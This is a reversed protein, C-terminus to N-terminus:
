DRLDLVFRWPRETAKSIGIRRSAVVEGGSVVEGLLLPGGRLISLGDLDGTVALAQTLKGPGDVLHDTRGRRRVIDDRGATIRGGRLLVAAAEGEPGCTVNMCWHVGLSLKM